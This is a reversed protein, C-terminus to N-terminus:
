QRLVVNLRHAAVDLLRAWQSRLMPHVGDVEAAAGGAIETLLAQGGDQRRHALVKVHGGIGLDGELSVGVGDRVLEQAPEPGLAEVPGGQADLAIVVLDELAQATRVGVLLGDGGELLHALRAEVVDGDVQHETQGLLAGEGPPIRQGVHQAEVGLM